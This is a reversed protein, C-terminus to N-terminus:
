RVFSLFPVAVVAALKGSPYFFGELEQESVLSPENDFDRGRLGRLPGPIM